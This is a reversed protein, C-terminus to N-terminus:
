FREEATFFFDGEIQANEDSNTEELSKLAVLEPGIKSTFTDFCIKATKYSSSDKFSVIYNDPISELIKNSKSCSSNLILFMFLLIVNYHMM